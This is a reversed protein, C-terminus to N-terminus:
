SLDSVSRPSVQSQGPVSRPSVQSQGSLSLHLNLARSLNPVFPRVSITVGQAGQRLWFLSCLCASCLEQSSSLCIGARLVSQISVAHYLMALKHLQMCARPNAQMSKSLNSFKSSGHPVMPLRQFGRPVKPFPINEIQTVSLCVSMSVQLVLQTKM